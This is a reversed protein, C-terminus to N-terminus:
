TVLYIKSSEPSPGPGQRHKGGDPREATPEESETVESVEGHATDEKLSCM